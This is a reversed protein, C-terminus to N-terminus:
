RPVVHRRGRERWRARRLLIKHVKAHPRVFVRAREFPCTRSSTQYPLASTTGTTSIGVIILVFRILFVRVFGDCRHSAEKLISATVNKPIGPTEGGFSSDTHLLRFVRFALEHVSCQEETTQSSFNCSQMGPHHRYNHTHIQHVRICQCKTAHLVLVIRRGM